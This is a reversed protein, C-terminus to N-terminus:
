WLVKWFFRLLECKEGWHLPTDRKEMAKSASPLKTNHKTYKRQSNKVWWDDTETVSLKHTVRPMSNPIISCQARVSSYLDSKILRVMNPKLVHKLINKVWESGRVLLVLGSVSYSLPRPSYKSEFSFTRSRQWAQQIIQAMSKEKDICM